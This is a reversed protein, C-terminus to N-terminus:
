QQMKASIIHVFFHSRFAFNFNPQDRSWQASLTDLKWNVPVGFAVKITLQSLWLRQCISSFFIFVFSKRSRRSLTQLQISSPSLLRKTFATLNFALYKSQRFFWLTSHPSQQRECCPTKEVSYGIWMMWHQWHWHYESHNRLPALCLKCDSYIYFVNTSVIRDIQKENQKTKPTVKTSKFENNDCFMQHEM